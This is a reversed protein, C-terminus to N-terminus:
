TYTLSFRDDSVFHGAVDYDYGVISQTTITFDDADCATIVYTGTDASAGKLFTEHTNAGWVVITNNYAAGDITYTGQFHADSTCDDKEKKCSSFVMSGVMCILFCLLTSKKVCNVPKLKPM